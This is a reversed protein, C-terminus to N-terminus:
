MVWGALYVAEITKGKIPADPPHKYQAFIGRYEEFGPEDPNGEYDDIATNLFKLGKNDAWDGINIFHNHAEELYATFKDAVERPIVYLKRDEPIEEWVLLVYNM